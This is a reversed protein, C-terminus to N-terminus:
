RNTRDIASQMEDIPCGQFYKPSLETFYLGRQEYLENDKGEVLELIGGAGAKQGGAFRVVQLVVEERHSEPRKGIEEPLLYFDDKMKEIRQGLGPEGKIDDLGRAEDLHNYYDNFSFRRREFSLILDAMPLLGYQEAPQGPEEVAVFISTIKEGTLMEIIGPVFIEQKACLPFRAPLQDLSNFLLTVEKCDQKLRHISMLMRHFFEEPTIYGPPYYLVELRNERELTDISIRGNQGSFQRDTNLISKMTSKTMGEDDRLSIILAGEDRGENLRNLIHLYALHSKHGGRHGILATCRGKPLRVVKDLEAPCLKVKEPEGAAGRRKYASLYYHISPFIFVGGEMRYPHARRLNINYDRIREDFAEQTEGDAKSPVEGPRRGSYVKLQHKGWVHSQYRAKVIEITRIYYDQSYWYDLQVVLDSVYEWFGRGRGTSDSDLVLIIMKTRPSAVELFREFFQGRKEPDVVNLSDVVLVDPSIREPRIDECVSKEPKKFVIKPLEIREGFNEMVEQDEAGVVWELLEKQANTVIETLTGGKIKDRGWVAVAQVDPKRGEFTLIRDDADQWGFSKANEILRDTEADISVYLSFLGAQALRYCLELVFTTKGSGPPGKVLFLLPKGEAHPLLIGGKLLKDLWSIHQVQEEEVAIEAPEFKATAREGGRLLCWFAQSVKTQLRDEKETNPETKAM